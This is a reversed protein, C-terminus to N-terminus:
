DLSFAQRLISQLIHHCGDVGLRSQRIGKRTLCRVAVLVRRQTTASFRRHLATSWIMPWLKVINNRSGSALFASDPSWALSFVSTTHGRLTGKVALTKPDWLTITNDSYDCTALMGGSPSWCCSVVWNRHGFTALCATTALDWIKATYDYGSTALKAGCPSFCICAILAHKGADSATFTSTCAFATTEWLKVLGNDTACALLAGDPSWCVAQVGCHCGGDLVRWSQQLAHPAETQWLQIFSRAAVALLKGDRSFAIARVCSAAHNETVSELPARVTGTAVDWLRVKGDSAGSHVHGYGGSAICSGDPSFAVALLPQTHGTFRRKCRQSDDVDWLEVVPTSFDLMGTCAVTRSDPSWAVEVNGDNKVRLRGPVEGLLLTAVPTCAM